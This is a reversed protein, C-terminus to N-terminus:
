DPEHKRAFLTKLFDVELRRQIFDADNFLGETETGAEPVVLVTAGARTGAVCGHVSDEIVLCKGPAIGLRRAAEIFIEPAPKPESIQDGTVIRDSVDDWIGLRRLAAEALRRHSSTAINWPLGWDRCLGLASRVGSLVDVETALLEEMRTMVNKELEKACLDDRQFLELFHAVVHDLRKGKTARCLEETLAIDYSAFM